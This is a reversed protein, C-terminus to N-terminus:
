EGQIIINHRLLQLTVLCVCRENLMRRKEVKRLMHKLQIRM